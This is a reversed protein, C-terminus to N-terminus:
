AKNHRTVLRAGLFDLSFTLRRLYKRPLTCETESQSVGRVVLSCQSTEATRETVIKLTSQDTGLPRKRCKCYIVSIYHQASDM